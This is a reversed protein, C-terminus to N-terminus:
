ALKVGLLYNYKSFPSKGKYDEYDGSALFKPVCDLYMIKWVHEQAGDFLNKTVNNEVNNEVKSRLAGEINLEYPSSPM